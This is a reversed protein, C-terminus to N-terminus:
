PLCPRLQGASKSLHFVVVDKRHDDLSQCVRKRADMWPSVRLLEIRSVETGSFETGADMEVMEGPEEIGVDWLPDSVEEGVVESAMLVDEFMKGFVKLHEHEIGAGM